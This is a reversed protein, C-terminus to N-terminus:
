LVQSRALNRGYTVKYFHDLLIILIESTSIECNVFKQQLLTGLLIFLKLRFDSLNENEAAVM